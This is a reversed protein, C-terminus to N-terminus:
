VTNYLTILALAIGVLGSTAFRTKWLPDVGRLALAALFFVVIAAALVTLWRLVALLLRRLSGVDVGLVLGGALGGPACARDWIRPEDEM